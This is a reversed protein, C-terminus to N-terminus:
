RLPPIARLVDRFIGSQVQFAPPSDRGAPWARVAGVAARELGIGAHCRRLVPPQRAACWRQRTTNAFNKALVSRCRLGQLLTWGWRCGAITWAAGRLEEFKGSVRRVGSLTYHQTPGINAAEATRNPASVM